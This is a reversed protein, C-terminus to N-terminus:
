LYQLTFPRVQLIKKIAWKLSSAEIFNERSWVTPWSWWWAQFPSCYLCCCFTGLLSVLLKFIWGCHVFFFCYCTFETYQTATQIYRILLANMVHKTHKGTPKNPWLLANCKLMKVDLLSTAQVLFLFVVQIFISVLLSLLEPVFNM